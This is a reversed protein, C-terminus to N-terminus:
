SKLILTLIQTITNQNINLIYSVFVFVVISKTRRRCISRHRMVIDPVSFFLLVPVTQSYFRYTVTLFDFMTHRGSLFTKLSRKFAPTSRLKM